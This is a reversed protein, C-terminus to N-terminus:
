SKQNTAAVPTADSWRQLVSVKALLRVGSDPVFSHAAEHLYDDLLRM